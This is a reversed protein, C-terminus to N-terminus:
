EPRWSLSGGGSTTIHVPNSGDALVIVIGHNTFAIYQGDPSWVPQVGGGWNWVPDLTPGILVQQDTGDPNTM